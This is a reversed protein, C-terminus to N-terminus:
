KVPLKMQPCLFMCLILVPTSSVSWSFSFFFLVLSCDIIATTVICDTLGLYYSGGNACESNDQEIHMVQEGLALYNFIGHYIQQESISAGEKGVKQSIKLVNTTLRLLTLLVRGVEGTLWNYLWFHERAPIHCLRQKLVWLCSALLKKRKDCTNNSGKCPCPSDSLHSRNKNRQQWGIKPSFHM